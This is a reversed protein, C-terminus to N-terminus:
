QLCFERSATRLSEAFDRSILRQGNLGAAQVADIARMIEASTFRLPKRAGDCSRPSDDRRFIDRGDLSGVEECVSQGSLRHGKQAPLSRHPYTGVVM